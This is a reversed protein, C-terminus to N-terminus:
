LVVKGTAEETVSQLKSRLLIIIPELLARTAGPAVQGSGSGEYQAYRQTFRLVVKAIKALGEFECQRTPEPSTFPYQLYEDIVAPPPPPTSDKTQQQQSNLVGDMLAICASAVLLAVVPQESCPCVLITLLRQCYSTISTTIGDGNSPPTPPRTHNQRSVSARRNSSSPDLQEVISAAMQACDGHNSGQTVLTEGEFAAPVWSNGQIRTHQGGSPQTIHNAPPESSIPVQTSSGSSNPRTFVTADNFLAPDLGTSPIPVQPYSTAAAANVEDGSAALEMGWDYNGWDFDGAAFGLPQGNNFCSPINLLNQLQQQQQQEHQEAQQQQQKQQRLRHPRGARRAPSYSCLQNLNLCRGCAPKGKDCRIKFTSCLDCAEKLKKQPTTTGSANNSLASLSLCLSSTSSDM